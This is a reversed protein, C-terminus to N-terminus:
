ISIVATFIVNSNKGLIPGSKTNQQRKLNNLRYYPPLTGNMLQFKLEQSECLLRFIEDRASDTPISAITRFVRTAMNRWLRDSARAGGEILLWRVVDFHKAFGAIEAALQARGRCQGILWQVINLHGSSAAHLLATFDYACQEVDPYNDEM